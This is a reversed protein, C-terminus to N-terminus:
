LRSLFVEDFRSGWSFVQQDPNVAAKSCWGRYEYLGTSTYVCRPVKQFSTELPMNGCTVIQVSYTESKLVMGIFVLGCYCFAQNKILFIYPRVFCITARICSHIKIKKNLPTHTHRAITTVGMYINLPSFVV